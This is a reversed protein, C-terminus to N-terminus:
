GERDPSTGPARDRHTFNPGRREPRFDESQQQIQRESDQEWGNDLTWETPFRELQPTARRQQRASTM